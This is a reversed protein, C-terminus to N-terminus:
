VSCELDNLWGLFVHLLKKDKISHSSLMDIGNYRFSYNMRSNGLVFLDFWCLSLWVKQIYSLRNIQELTFSEALVSSVQSCIPGADVGEDVRHLTAGFIKVNAEIADRVGHLGPFSPLLSPHINWVPIAEFLDNTILRTYYLMVKRCSSKEFFIKASKSFLSNDTFEILNYNKANEKAWQYLGCERDSVVSYEVEYGSKQICENAASLASGGSSGIIGIKM